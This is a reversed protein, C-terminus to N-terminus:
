FPVPRCFPVMPWESLSLCSFTAFTATISTVSQSKCWRPSHPFISFGLFCLSVKPSYGIIGGVVASAFLLLGSSRLVVFHSLAGTNFMWPCYHDMCLVLTKTVHDYHARPPKPQHSNNCYGWEHPGMMMWRRIPPNPPSSAPAPTSSQAVLSSSSNGNAATTSARDLTTTAANTTRRQTVADTQQSQQQLLQEQQQRQQQLRAQRRQMRYVMRDEFERKYLQVEQPTEPFDVGTAEALERVVRDYHKGKNPTMVCLVYNFTTNSLLYVVWLIHLYLFPEKNREMMPLVVYFFSYALGSM